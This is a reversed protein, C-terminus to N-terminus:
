LWDRKDSIRSSVVLNEPRTENALNKDFDEKNIEKIEPEILETRGMSLNRNITQENKKTNQPRLDSISEPSKKEEEFSIEQEWTRKFDDTSRRFEAITKGITRAMEPLKRPGFVILAVLGILM